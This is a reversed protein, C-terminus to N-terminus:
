SLDFDIYSKNYILGAAVWSYSMAEPFYSVDILAPNQEPKTKGKLEATRKGLVDLALYSLHANRTNPTQILGM